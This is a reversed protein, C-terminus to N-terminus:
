KKKRQRDWHSSTLKFIFLSYTDVVIYQNTLRHLQSHQNTTGKEPPRKPLLPNTGAHSRPSPQIGVPTRDMDWTEWDTKLGLLSYINRLATAFEQDEYIKTADPHHLVLLGQAACEELPKIKISGDAQRINLKYPMHHETVIELQTRGQTGPEGPHNTGYVKRSTLPQSPQDRDPKITFEDWEDEVLVDDDFINVDPLFGDLTNFRQEIKRMLAAAKTDALDTGRIDETKTTAVEFHYGLGAFMQACITEGPAKLNSRHASSRRPANPPTTASTIYRPHIPHAIGTPGYVFTQLQPRHQDPEAKSLSPPEPYPRTNRIPLRPFLDARKDEETVAHDPAKRKGSGQAESPQAQGQDGKVQIHQALTIKPALRKCTDKIRNLEEGWTDFAKSDTTAVLTAFFNELYTTLREQDEPPIETAADYLAPELKRLRDQISNRITRLTPFDRCAQDTANLKALLNQYRTAMGETRKAQRAKANPSIPRPQHPPPAGGERDGACTALWSLM